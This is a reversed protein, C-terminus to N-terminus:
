DVIVDMIGTRLANWIYEQFADGPARTYDIKGEKMSGPAVSPNSNRIKLVNALLSTVRNDFGNETGTEDDLVAVVLDQYVASVTGLAQGDRVAIEFTTNKATGSKIRVREAPELFTNLRTLDM